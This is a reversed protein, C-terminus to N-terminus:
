LYIERQNHYNLLWQHSLMALWFRLSLYLGEEIVITSYFILYNYPHLISVLRVIKKKTRDKERLSSLHNHPTGVGHSKALARLHDHSRADM